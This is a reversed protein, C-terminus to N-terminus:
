VTETQFLDSFRRKGPVEHHNRCRATYSDEAGIVVLESDVNAPEGNILRQTFSAEAGCKSCIATLNNVQDAIAMLVPMPGFPEGRFDTNLGALMVIRGDEAFQRVMEVFIEASDIYFQVEDIIVVLPDLEEVREYIALPSAIAECEVSRGDHSSIKSVGEYRTDLPHKAIFVSAGARTWREAWSIVFSSKGAFMPGATVEIRGRQDKWHELGKPM